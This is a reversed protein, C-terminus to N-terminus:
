RDAFGGFASSQARARLTRGDLANPDLFVTTPEDFSVQHKAANAEARERTGNSSANLIYVVGPVSMTFRRHRQKAVDAPWAQCRCRAVQRRVAQSALAPFFEDRGTRRLKIEYERDAVTGGL